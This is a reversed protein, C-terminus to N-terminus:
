PETAAKTAEHKAVFSDLRARAKKRTAMRLLPSWGLLLGVPGLAQRTWKWMDFQDVHSLIKGDVITFRADIVNIVKRGTQSFTYTAIWTAAAKDDKATVDRFEVSLDTAAESLMRWMAGIQAGELDGFAPDHFRADPAYSGAMTAWDGQGLATYFRSVLDLNAQETPTTMARM